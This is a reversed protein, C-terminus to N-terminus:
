VSVEKIAEKRAEELDKRLEEPIDTVLHFEIQPPIRGNEKEREMEDRMDKETFILFLRASPEAVSMLFYIDRFLSNKKGIGKKGGKSYLKSTSIAAVISDDSSVASFQYTGGWKLEVPRKSFPLGFQDPLAKERIYEAVERQSTTNAM